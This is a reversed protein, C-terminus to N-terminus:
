MEEKNLASTITEADEKRTCMCIVRDPATGKEEVVAVFWNGTIEYFCYKM